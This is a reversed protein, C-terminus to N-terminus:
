GGVYLEEKGDVRNLAMEVCSKRILEHLLEAQKPDEDPEHPSKEPCSADYKQKKQRKEGEQQQKPSPSAEIEPRRTPDETPLPGPGM